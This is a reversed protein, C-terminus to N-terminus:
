IVPMSEDLQVQEECGFPKEPGIAGKFSSTNVARKEALQLQRHMNSTRNLDSLDRNVVSSGRCLHFTLGFGFGFCLSFSFGFCMGMIKLEWCKSTVLSVIVSM